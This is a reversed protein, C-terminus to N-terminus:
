CNRSPQRESEGFYEKEFSRLISRAGFIGGATAGPKGQLRVRVKARKEPNPIPYSEEFFTGPRDNALRREAIKQGDVLIDFNRNGTEDGWYDLLLLTEKEPDVKLDFEFWGGDRADRWKRGNFEGAFTKEGAFNADREPQM